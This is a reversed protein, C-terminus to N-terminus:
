PTVTPGNHLSCEPNTCMWCYTHTVPNYGRRATGVSHCAPCEGVTYLITTRRASVPQSSEAAVYANGLDLLNETTSFQTLTYGLNTDLGAVVVSSTYSLTGSKASYRSELAANSYTSIKHSAMAYNNAAAKTYMSTNASYQLTAMFGRILISSVIMMIAVALIIELLTFGRKHSGKLVRKM